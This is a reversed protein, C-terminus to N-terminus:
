LFYRSNLSDRNAPPGSALFASRENVGAVFFCYCLTRKFAQSLDVGSPALGRVGLGPLDEFLAPLAEPHYPVRQRFCFSLDPGQRFSSGQYLLFPSVM